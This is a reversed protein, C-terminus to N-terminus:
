RGSPAPPRATAQRAGRLRARDPAPVPCPMTRLLVGDHSVVAMQAGDVRLTVKQGALEYGVNFQTGALSALGQANVM